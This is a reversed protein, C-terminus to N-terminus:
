RRSLSELDSTAAARGGSRSRSSCREPSFRRETASGWVACVRPVHLARRGVSHWSNNRCQRSAPASKSACLTELLTSRNGSIRACIRTCHPRWIHEMDVPEAWKLSVSESSVSQVLPKGPALPRPAASPPRRQVRLTESAHTADSREGAEDVATVRVNLEGDLAAPLQLQQPSSQPPVRGVLQWHAASSPRVEVLLTRIRADRWREPWEWQLHLADAGCLAASLHKPAPPRSPQTDVSAREGSVRYSRASELPEGVASAANRARVRFVYDRDRRLHEVLASSAQADCSAVPLWGRTGLERSEVVYGSISADTRLPRSWRM